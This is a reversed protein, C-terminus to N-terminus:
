NNSVLLLQKEITDHTTVLFQNDGYIKQLMIAGEISIVAQKALQHAIIPDYYDAYIASLAAIWDDFFRRIVKIIEPHTNSVELAINGMLCGDPSHLFLEESFARFIAMKEKASKDEDYAISFVREQYKQHLFELVTIMLAEKGAFYHYISGKMLGCAEALDSMSTNHYGRAKFVSLASKIIDKETVKQVPM